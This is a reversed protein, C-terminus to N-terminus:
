QKSGDIVPNEGRSYDGSLSYESMAEGQLKKKRNQGETAREQHPKEPTVKRYADSLSTSRRSHRPYPHHVQVDSFAGSVALGELYTRFFSAPHGIIGQQVITRKGCHPCVVEGEPAWFRKGCYECTTSKPVKRTHKPKDEQHDKPSRRVRTM